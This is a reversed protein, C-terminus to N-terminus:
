ASSGVTERQAAVLKTVAPYDVKGTGLLPLRPVTV